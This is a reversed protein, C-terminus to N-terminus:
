GVRSKLLWSLVFGTAIAASLMAVPRERIQGRVMDGLWEGSASLQESRKGLSEAGHSAAVAIKDVTDHVKVSFQDIMPHAAASAQDIVNNLGSSKFDATTNTKTTDTTMGM